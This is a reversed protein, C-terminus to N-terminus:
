AIRQVFETVAEVFAVPQDAQVWHGAGAITRILASPFIRLIDREDEPLIYTSEAGRLFLVPKPTPRLYTLESGVLHIDRTLVPLNLRWGFHGTTADRYLNKLLFQRVGPNAEYRSLLEEAQQRGSLTRLDIANLGALIPAHHIPYFKPAIDVVVLKSWADPYNMAFQMATKGGMSHGLIIPAELNQDDIFEKLDAAMVEFDFDDHHPSRGHNRQDLTFVRFQTSLMKAVTLWNDASGFIGHLIVLAPGTEGTQRFFLKM